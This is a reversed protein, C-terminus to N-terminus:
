AAKIGYLTFTSGTAFTGSNRVTLTISTIANTNRWLGVVADTSAFSGTAHGNRGITTKYTTTNSYNMVNFSYIGPSNAVTTWSALGASPIFATNSSRSSSASTGNGGVYTFSYNSGTDGNFTIGAEWGDQTANQGDCMVFLDTYTGSISTFTVTGQASGLTTTAIPEYTAGAAM